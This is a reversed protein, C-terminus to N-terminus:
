FYLVKRVLSVASEAAGPSSQEGQMANQLREIETRLEQIREGQAQVTGVQANLAKQQGADSPPPLDDQMQSLRKCSGDYDAQLQAIETELRELEDAMRAFREHQLPLREVARQLRPAAAILELTRTADRLRTVLGSGFHTGILEMQALALGAILFLLAPLRM